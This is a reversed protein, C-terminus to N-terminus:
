GTGNQIEHAKLGAQYGNKYGATYSMDNGLKQQAITSNQGDFFGRQYDEISKSTSAFDTSNAGLKYSGFIMTSVLIGCIIIFILSKKNM